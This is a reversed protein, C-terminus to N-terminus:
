PIEKPIPITSRAAAPPVLAAYAALDIVVREAARESASAADSHLRTAEATAAASLPRRAKRNCPRAQSFAALVARELAIVHGEDRVVAGAGAPQRQHAAVTAGGATVVRITPEGLRTRVEVEAGPLGPPVSYQNGDFSVLGQPTVTRTVVVDVPYRRDPAPRLHEHDALEGVTLRQGDRIRTRNDMRTALRDIGAQAATITIDDPVTRWWRQAASHNAKEVVGKRNGHRSPCVTVAVGHHKAVGAFAKTVRGSGPHCVTAMRDFRWCQTVGGLRAVVQEIAAVLHGFDETEALVGRWKGSCSLAGVLLHAHRGVEWHAPPDPLELWDWQTEEGPPHTIIAADRGRSAACAECHPRLELKRIAATLSPYSGSFGLELLEDFLTSAWVHPDDRLRIRCYELFPEIVRPASRVRQGPEREGNLYSRITKRDHDLHRGIASISWGQARLAHAEVDDGWDLVM